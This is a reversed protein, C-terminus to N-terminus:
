EVFFISYNNNKGLLRFKSISPTILSDSVLLYGYKVENIDAIPTVIRNRNRGFLAYELPNRTILIFLPEGEPVQSNVFEMNKVSYLSSYFLRDYYTTEYINIQKSSNKTPYTIKLLAKKIFKQTVNNEPLPLVYNNIIDNQTKATIIPKSDNSLLTNLIIILSIPLLLGLVLRQLNKRNPLLGSVLPIFPITSIIFYRGQYPDWGPRQLIIFFLYIISNGLCALAYNRRVNNKSVLNLILSIPFLIFVFPGFWATDESLKPVEQYRFSEMEDYGPQLYVNEELDLGIPIFIGEFFSKKVQTFNPQISRPLGEVGILQYSFRPVLYKVKETVSSISTYRENLVKELGFVSGTHVYNLIYQYSVLLIAFIFLLWSYKFFNNVGKNKLLVFLTVLGAVPLIFFATQKTGLALLLSLGALLLFKINRSLFFIFFFAIFVMLLSTVILDGQFSFTQLLVVPMSLGILSSVLAQTTSFGLSKSIEFISATIIVLSFWQVVFFLNENQGLLFLWLGQIHANIPYILQYRNLSTLTTWYDLSGQQLWYYIRPLHSALSDINNIPTTIGIAFFGILAASIISVLIIQIKSFHFFSFDFTTQYQQLSIPTYRHALLTINSCLFVQIALFLWGHNLLHLLGLIESTLINISFTCLFFFLLIKSFSAKEFIRTFM